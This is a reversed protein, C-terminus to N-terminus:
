RKARNRNFRLEDKSLELGVFITYGGGAEGPNVPINLTLVDAFSITKRSAYPVKAVFGRRSLINQETDAIAVFYRIEVRKSKNAPGQRTGIEIRLDISLDAEDLTCEGTVRSIWAEIRVDTPDRGPGPNFRTLEDLDQLVRVSPCAITSEGGGICASLILALAVVALSRPVIM